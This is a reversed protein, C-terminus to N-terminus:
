QSDIGADTRLPPPGCRVVCGHWQKGNRTAVEHPRNRPRQTRDEAQTQCPRGAACGAPRFPRGHADRGASLIQKVQADSFDPSYLHTESLSIEQRVGDRRVRAAPWQQQLTTLHRVLREYRDPATERAAAVTLTIAAAVRSYELVGEVKLDGSRLKAIPGCARVLRNSSSADSLHETILRRLRDFTEDTKDAVLWEPELKAIDEPRVFWMGAVGDAEIREIGSAKLINRIEPPRRQLADGFDLASVYHEQFREVSNPCIGSVTGASGPLREILGARALAAISAPHVGLRAAAEAGAIGNTRKPKRTPLTHVPSRADEALLLCAGFGCAKGVWGIVQRSGNVIELAVEGARKRTRRCFAGFAVSPLHTVQISGRVASLVADVESPVFRDGSRTAQGIRILPSLKGADIM